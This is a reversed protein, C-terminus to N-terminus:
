PRCTSNPVAVDRRLLSWRNAPRFWYDICYGNASSSNPNGHEDCPYATVVFDADGSNTNGRGTDIAVWPSNRDDPPDKVASTEVSKATSSVDLDFMLWTAWSDIDKLNAGLPDITVEWYPAQSCGGDIERVDTVAVQGRNGAGRADTGIVWGLEGRVPPKAWCTASTGANDLRCMRPVGTAGTRPREVRVIRGAKPGADAVHVLGVAAVILAISKVHVM